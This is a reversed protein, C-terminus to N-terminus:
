QIHKYIHLVVFSYFKQKLGLAIKFDNMYETFLKANTKHEAIVRPVQPYLQLCLSCLDEMWCKCDVQFLLEWPSSYLSVFLPVQSLRPTPTMLFAKLNIRKITKRSIM